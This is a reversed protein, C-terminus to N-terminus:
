NDCIRSMGLIDSLIGSIDNGIDSERDSFGPVVIAFANCRTNQM